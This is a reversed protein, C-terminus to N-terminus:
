DCKWKELVKEIDRIVQGDELVTELPINKKKVNPDLDM